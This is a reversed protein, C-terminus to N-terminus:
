NTIKALIDKYESKKYKIALSKEINKNILEEKKENCSISSIIKTKYLIKNLIKSTINQKETKELVIEFKEKAIDWNNWYIELLKKSKKMESLNEEILFFIYDTKELIKQTFEFFCESSTNIIIYEYKEKLKELIREFEYINISNNIKFLINTGSLLDLYKYKKIIHDELKISKEEKNKVGFLTHINQNLIDFDILITKIKKKELEKVLSASFVSKGAGFSGTVSIIKNTNIKKIKPEKRTFKELFQEIKSKEKQNESIIKKLNEIEKKLEETNEESNKIIESIEKISIEGNTFTKYVKINSNYFEDKRHNEIFLIIRIKPLKEIFKEIKEGPLNENLLLFDIKDNEKLYDLVAEQYLLDTSSVEIDSEERLRRNVNENMLATLVKKNDNM